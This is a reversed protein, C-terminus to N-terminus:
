GISYIGDNSHQKPFIKGDADWEKEPNCFMRMEQYFRLVIGLVLLGIVGLLVPLVFPLFAILFGAVVTWEDFHFPIWVLVFYLLVLAVYYPELGYKGLRSRFGKYFVSM